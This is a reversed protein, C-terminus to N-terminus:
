AAQAKGHDDCHGKHDHHLHGDVLYDTHNGHTVVQHGCTPGHKHSKEHGKCSHGSTCSEPNKDSVKVSKESKM